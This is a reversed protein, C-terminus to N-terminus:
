VDVDSREPSSETLDRALEREVLHDRPPDCAFTRGTPVFGHREYLAAARGNRIGVDLMLRVAGVSRAHSVAAVMLADGVGCGRAAPAVWVAFLGLIGPPAAGARRGVIALGAPAGDLTAVFSWVDDRGLRARWWEEPQDQEEALTSGFADPADELAALRLARVQEWRDGDVVEVDVRERM